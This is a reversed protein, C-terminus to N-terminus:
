SANRQTNFVREPLLPERIRNFRVMIGIAPAQSAAQQLAWALPSSAELPWTVEGFPVCTQFCCGRKGGAADVVSGDHLATLDLWRSHMRFNRPGIIMAHEASRCRDFYIQEVLLVIPPTSSSRPVAANDVATTVGGGILPDDTV